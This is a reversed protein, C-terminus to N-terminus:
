VKKGRLSIYFLFAIMLAIVVLSVMNSEIITPLSIGAVIVGALVIGMVAEGAILGSGTLIGRHNAEEEAGAGKKRAIRRVISNIIGGVCIPVGLSLPLYIGVAVPMVYARFSSKKSKLILDIIILLVAVIAGIFFMNWPLPKGTFIMNTLSAFLTAQPAVLPAQGPSGGVVGEIGMFGYARLLLSLIPAMIFAPALVGITQGIQQKWPTAGVLYGTKLDQSIDGATCAAVCVVAAVMMAAVLGVMSTMGFALLMVSAFLVTCITMGSVPNNSSGVLGVVYSSVAVFFFGAVIMAITAVLSMSSSGIVWFYLIFILIAVPIIALLVYNMPLDTDTRKIGIAAEVRKFGSIAKKFGSAIGHRASIISWIGGVLMAGVGMYRIQSSWIERAADLSTMGVFETAHLYSYIPIGVLWAIAGGIFVLLGINFGVIYGVGLLAVSMDSGFYFVSKAARVAGEVSGKIIRVGTVFFKFLAGLALASFVYKVGIGGKDGVELVKDCAVGEPFVLEEEEVVFARRLPIMFLIGLLGGLLAVLMVPWYTFDEWAGVIVLAPITFIIGAALSEGASGITQAMNNELITGKKLVGKLLGMSIVAAPISACVTMGAYLGLYCNAAGFVITLLIGLLIAKLTFEPLSKEPPIYPIFEEAM